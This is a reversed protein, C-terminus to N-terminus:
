YRCPQRIFWRIKGSNWLCTFDMNSLMPTQGPIENAQPKAVQWNSVTIPFGKWRIKVHYNRPSVSKSKSVEYCIFMWHWIYEFCQYVCSHQLTCFHFYFLIALCKPNKENNKNMNRGDVTTNSGIMLAPIMVCAKVWQPRIVCIHTPLSVMMPESLPKDGPRRWAM